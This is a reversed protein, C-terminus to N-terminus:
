STCAAALPYYTLAVAGSAMWFGTGTLLAILSGVAVVGGLELVAVLLRGAAGVLAETRDEALTLRFAADSEAARPRPAGAEDPFLELFEELVAEPALGVIEAYGRVFARRFIGPPWKSADGAELEALLSRSIKTSAAIADLSIGLHERQARLRRGFSQATTNM